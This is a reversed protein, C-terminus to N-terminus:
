GVPTLGEYYEWRKKAAESEFAMAGQEYEEVYAAELDERTGIPDGGRNMFIHDDPEM